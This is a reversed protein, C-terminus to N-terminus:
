GATVTARVSFQPASGLDTLDQGTLSNASADGPLDRHWWNSFVVVTGPRVDDTVGAPASVTGHDSEVRVPAGDTIGLREADAASLLVHADGAMRRLRPSDVFTSNLFHHSKPTIVVL